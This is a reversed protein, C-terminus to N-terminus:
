RPPFATRRGLAVTLLAIASLAIMAIPIAAPGIGDVLIAGAAGGGFIALNFATTLMANAVDVSEGAANGMATQLQTASGGFAIGWL